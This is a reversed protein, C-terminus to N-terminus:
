KGKKFDAYSLIQIGLFLLFLLEVAAIWRLSISNSAADFWFILLAIVGPLVFVIEDIIFQIIKRSIRKKDSRNEIEWGFLISDKDKILVRLKDSFTTRIYLGMASIKEDNMLYTWGLTLCILPLALLVPMRANNDAVISVIGTIAILNAYILNDRFGIRQIQEQKLKEFESLYINLLHDEQSTAM